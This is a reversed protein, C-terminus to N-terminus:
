VPLAEQARRAGQLHLLIGVTVTHHMNHICGAPLRVRAPAQVERMRWPQHWAAAAAAAKAQMSIVPLADWRHTGTSLEVVKTKKTNTSLIQV